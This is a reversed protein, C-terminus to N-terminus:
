QLWRRRAYWFGAILAAVVVGALAAVYGVENGRRQTTEPYDDDTDLLGAIGGVTNPDPECPDTGLALERFNPLGDGDPDARADAVFQNLCGNAQEYTDPMGDNDDDPDINDPITDGDNDPNVVLQGFMTLFHINCRYFFTGATNFTESFQAGSGGALNGSEFGQTCSQFTGDTCESVTHPLFGVQTWTVTDGVGISTSQGDNECVATQFSPDCFWTDGIDINLTAAEAGQPAGTGSFLVLM